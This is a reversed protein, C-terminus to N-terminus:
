CSKGLCKERRAGIEEHIDSLICVLEASIRYLDDVEYNKLKICNYGFCDYEDDYFVETVRHQTM